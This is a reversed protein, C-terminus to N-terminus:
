GCVVGPWDIGERVISQCRHEEAEKEEEQKKEEKEKEKDERIRRGKRRVKRWNM